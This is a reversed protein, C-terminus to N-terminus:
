KGARKAKGPKKRKKTTSGVQKVLECKWASKPLDSGVLMVASRAAAADNELVITAKSGFRAADRDFFIMPQAISQAKSSGVKVRLGGAQGGDYIAVFKVNSLAPKYTARMFRTERAKAGAKKAQARTHAPVGDVSLSFQECSSVQLSSRKVLSPAQAGQVHIRLETQIAPM